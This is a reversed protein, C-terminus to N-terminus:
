LPSYALTNGNNNNNNNNNSNNSFFIRAYVTFSITKWIETSRGNIISLVTILVTTDIYGLVTKNEVLIWSFLANTEFTRIPICLCFTVRLLGDTWRSALRFFRINGDSQKSPCVSNLDLPNFGHWKPRPPSSLLEGSKAGTSSLRELLACQIQRSVNCVVSSTTTPWATLM